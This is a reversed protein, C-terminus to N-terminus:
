DKIRSFKLAKLMLDPLPKSPSRKEVNLYLGWKEVIPVKYVEIMEIWTQDPDDIYTCHVKTNGM